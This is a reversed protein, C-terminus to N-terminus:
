LHYIESDCLKLILPKMCVPLRLGVCSLNLDCVGASLWSFTLKRAQGVDMSKTHDSFRCALLKLVFLGPVSAGEVAQGFYVFM